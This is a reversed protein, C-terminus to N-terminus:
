VKTELFKLYDQLAQLAGNFIEGRKKEYFIEFLRSVERKEAVSISISHDKDTIVGYFTVRPYPDLDSLGVRAYRGQKPVLASIPLLDERIEWTLPSISALLKQVLEDRKSEEQLTM